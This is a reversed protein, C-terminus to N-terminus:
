LYCIGICTGNINDGILRTPTTYDTM